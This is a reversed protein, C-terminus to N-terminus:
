KRAAEILRQHIAALAQEEAQYMARAQQVQVMQRAYAAGLAEIGMEAVGSALQAPTKVQPAPEPIEPMSVNTYKEMARDIVDLPAYGDTMPVSALAPAPSPAPEPAATVEPAPPISPASEPVITVASSAPAPKPMKREPDALYRVKFRDDAPLRDLFTPDLEEVIKKLNKYTPLSDGREWNGWLGNQGGILEAMERQTVGVNRRTIAIAKCIATDKYAATTRPMPKHEKRPETTTVLSLSPASSKRWPPPSPFGLRALKGAWEAKRGWDLWAHPVGARKAIERGRETMGHSGLDTLIIIVETGVPPLTRMKTEQEMPWHDTIEMGFENLLRDRIQDAVKVFGGVLWTQFARENRPKPMLRSDTHRLQEALQM